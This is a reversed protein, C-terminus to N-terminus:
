AAGGGQIVRLGVRDGPRPDGAHDRGGPGYRLQELEAITPAELPKVVEPWEGERLRAGFEYGIKYGEALGRGYAEREADLLRDLWRAREDSLETLASVSHAALIKEIGEGGADHTTPSGRRWDAPSGENATM